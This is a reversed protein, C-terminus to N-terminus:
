FVTEMNLLMNGSLLIASFISNPGLLNFYKTLLPNAGYKLSNEDSSIKFDLYKATDKIFAQVSSNM